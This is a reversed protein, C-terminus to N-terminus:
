HACTEFYEVLLNKTHQLHADTHQSSVSCMEYPSPSFYVGREFLFSFLEQFRKTDTKMAEEMNDVRNKTFFVTFCSGIQQVTTYKRIPQTIVDAKAQLEEYFNPQELLLLSQYGAEMAVPNGSLTGAQYVEGLPALINMIEERGGFAAAPFGGGIIKGLCTMDPIIDFYHQAGGLGLRFGTVVEDFILLASLEETRRRLHNIFEQTAPVLGMNTAIPEIIVCALDEAIKKDELLRDFAEIDNYPLCITWQVYEKPIGASSSTKNLGLMGSGAQVLFGDAHGHYCGTFKIVYNKRTYGRAVRVASMTAETGSSVFRMKEISPMHSSIKRALKEEIETTVGFSTGAQMREIVKELIAPHAHGHILSGWSMCYDIYEHDDADVLMDQYAAKGVLPAMQLSRFARVPSSVGGPIVEQLRRYIEQSQIRNKM